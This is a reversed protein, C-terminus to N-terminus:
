LANSAFFSVSDVYYVQSRTVKESLGGSARPCM